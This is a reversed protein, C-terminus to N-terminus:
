VEALEYITLFGKFSTTSSRYNYTELRVKSGENYCRYIGSAQCGGGNSLTTRVERAWDESGSATHVVVKTSMISSDDGITGEVQGIFLYRKGDVLTYETNSFVGVKNSVISITQSEANLAGNM